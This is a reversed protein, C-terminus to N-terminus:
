ERLEKAKVRALGDRAILIHFPLIIRLYLNGFLNHTHVWTALYVQGQVSMVSVRFNLHKDDFGAILEQESEFEVPFIGVSNPDGPGDNSIGFPATIARRFILLFNAWRPFDTIIDAARRPSM